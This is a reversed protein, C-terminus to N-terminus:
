LKKCPMLDKTDKDQSYVKGLSNLSSVFQQCNEESTFIFNQQSAKFQFYKETVQHKIAQPNWDQILPKFYQGQELAITVGGQQNNQAVLFVTSSNNDQRIGGDNYLVWASGSKQSFFNVRIILIEFCTLKIEYM